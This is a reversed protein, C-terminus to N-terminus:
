RKKRDSRLKGVQKYAILIIVVLEALMVFPRLLRDLANYSTATGFFLAFVGGLMFGTGVWENLTNAKAPLYLGLFIAILALVASIYFKARQYNDNANQFDNQCTNCFYSEACGSSDYKYDIYGNRMECDQQSAKPVSIETCNGNHKIPYYANRCFNEYKPPEYVAAITAFVFVSFLVAIVLIILYKRIDAM